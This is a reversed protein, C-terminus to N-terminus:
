AGNDVDLNLHPDLHPHLHLHECNCQIVVQGMVVRQHNPPVNENYLLVQQGQRFTKSETTAYSFETNAKILDNTLKINDVINVYYGTVSCQSFFDITRCTLAVGQSVCSIRSLTKHNNPCKCAM